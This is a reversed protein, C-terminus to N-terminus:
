NVVITMYAPTNEVALLLLENDAWPSFIRHGRFSLRADSHASRGCRRIKHRLYKPLIMDTDSGGPNIKFRVASFATAISAM